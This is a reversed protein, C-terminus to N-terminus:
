TLTKKIVIKSEDKDKGMANDMIEGEQIIDVQQQYADMMENYVIYDEM